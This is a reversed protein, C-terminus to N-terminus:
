EERELDLADVMDILTGPNGLVRKFSGMASELNEDTLEVNVTYMAWLLDEVTICVVQEHPRHKGEYVREEQSWAQFKQM